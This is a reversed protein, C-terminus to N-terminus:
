GNAVRVPLVAFGLDSALRRMADDLSCIKLPEGTAAQLLLATALHIADLSRCAGLRAEDRLVQVVEKDLCLISVYQLYEDLRALARALFDSAAVPSLTGAARRLVTVCEVELLVSSVRVTESDWLEILEETGAEGLLAALLFSSDYYSPM